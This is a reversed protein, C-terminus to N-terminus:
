RPRVDACSERERERERERESRLDCEDVKVRSASSGRGLRLVVPLTLQEVGWEGEVRM